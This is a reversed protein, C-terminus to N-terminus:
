YRIKSEDYEFLYVNGSSYQNKFTTTGICDTDRYFYMRNNYLFVIMLFDLRLIQTVQKYQEYKNDVTFCRKGNVPYISKKVKADVAYCGKRPDKNFVSFDPLVLSGETGILRPGAKEGRKQSRLDAVFSNNAVLYQYLIDEGAEGTKLNQEFVQQSSM